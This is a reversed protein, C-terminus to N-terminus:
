LMTSFYNVLVVVKNTFLKNGNFATSDFKVGFVSDCEKVFEINSDEMSSRTKMPFGIAASPVNIFCTGCLHDIHIM